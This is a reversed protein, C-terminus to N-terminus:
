TIAAVVHPRLVDAPQMELGDIIVEYDGLRVHEVLHPLPYMLCRIYATNSNAQMGNSAGSRKQLRYM